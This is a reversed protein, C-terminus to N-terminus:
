LPYSRHPKMHKMYGNSQRRRCPDAQESNYYPNISKGGPIFGEGKLPVAKVHKENGIDFTRRGFDQVASLDFLAHRVASTEQLLLAM